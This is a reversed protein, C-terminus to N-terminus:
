PRFEKYLIDIAEKFDTEEDVPIFRTYVTVQVRYFMRITHPDLGHSLAYDEAEQLAYQYDQSIIYMTNEPSPPEGNFTAVFNNDRFIESM